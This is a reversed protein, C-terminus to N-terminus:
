GAADEEIAINCFLLRRRLAALDPTRVVVSREEWLAEGISDPETLHPALDEEVLEEFDERTMQATLVLKYRGGGLDLIRARKWPKSPLGLM